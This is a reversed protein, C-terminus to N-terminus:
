LLKVIAAVAAIGAFLVGLSWRQMDMMQKSLERIIESKAADLDGRARLPDAHLQYRKDITANLEDAFAAADADDAGLKRFTRFIVAEISM